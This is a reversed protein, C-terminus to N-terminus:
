LLGQNKLDKLLERLYDAFDNVNEREYTRILEKIAQEVEKKTFSAKNGGRSGPFLGKMRLRDNVIRHLISHTNESLYESGIKNELERLKPSRARRFVAALAIHHRHWGKKILRTEYTQFNVKQKKKITNKNKHKKNGKKTKGGFIIGAAGSGATTALTGVDGDEGADVIDSITVALGIAKAAKGQPLINLLREADEKAGKITGKRIGEGLNRLDLYGSITSDAFGMAIGLADVGTAGLAGLIPDGGDSAYDELQGKLTSAARQGNGFFNTVEEQAQDGLLEGAKTSKPEPRGARDDNNRTRADDGTNGKLNEPLNNNSVKTNARDDQITQEPKVATKDTKVQTEEPTTKRARHSQSTGEGKLKIEFPDRPKDYKTLDIVTKQADPYGRAISQEIWRVASELSYASGLSMPSVSDHYTVFINFISGGASKDIDYIAQAKGNESVILVEPGVIRSVNNM